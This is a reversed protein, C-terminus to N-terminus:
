HAATQQSLEMGFLDAFHKKLREKVEAMPVERGLEGQLSAVAKDDIGCPVINNFYNLDTNINFAFGHMTVWRSARVGIACIKRARENDPDLWVGTYGAYRGAKIEYDALTRIVAEEITRMYLHIDTFFNDLDLIPYGVLQGPGHYTIDGGRNIKYYTAQKDLLGQEDLLLNEAKGSKGLTYVHPHEVFILYNDTPSDTGNLRNDTKQQVIQAFIREQWDWAEQYDVNGWDEFFVKKNM